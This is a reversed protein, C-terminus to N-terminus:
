CARICFYVGVMGNLRFMHICSFLCKLLDSNRIKPCVNEQIPLLPERKVSLTQPYPTNALRRAATRLLECGNAATRLVTRLREGGNSEHSTRKATGIPLAAFTTVKSPKLPQAVEKRAAPTASQSMTVYKMVHCFVNQTVPAVSKRPKRLLRLVKSTDRKITRPLRLVKSTHRQRNKRRVTDPHCGRPM